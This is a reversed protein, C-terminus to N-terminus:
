IRICDFYTADATIEHDSALVQIITDKGFLDNALTAAAAVAPATNRAVPELLVAALEIGLERAQEAVLFRFEENTVVIAAE